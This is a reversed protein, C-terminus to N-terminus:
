DVITRASDYAYYFGPDSSRYRKALMDIKDYLLRDCEKFLEELQSVTQSLKVQRLRPRGNVEEFDDLSSELDKIQDATVGYDKLHKLNTKVIEILNSVLAPLEANRTKYYDSMTISTKDQLEDDGNIAAYANIIAALNGAKESVAKKLGNKSRGLATGLDSKVETMQRVSQIYDDLENKLNVQIPIANWLTTYDDLLNQVQQYMEFKNKQKNDM